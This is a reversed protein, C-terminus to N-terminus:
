FTHIGPSLTYEKGDIIATAETPTIIEYHLKGNEHWWRSSAIGSATDIEAKFWDVRDDPIPAFHIKAFGPAEDVTNIGAMVGYMWDGVAGYAYHNFSNM